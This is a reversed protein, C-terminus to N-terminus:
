SIVHEFSTLSPLWGCFHDQRKHNTAIASTGPTFKLFVCPFCFSIFSLFLNSCVCVCVCVCVCMCLSVFFTTFIETCNWYYNIIRQCATTCDAISELTEILCWFRLLAILSEERRHYSSETEFSFIRLRKKVWVQKLWAPIQGIVWM